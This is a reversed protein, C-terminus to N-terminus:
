SRLVCRSMKREVHVIVKIFVYLFVWGRPNGHGAFRGYLIKQSLMKIGEFDPSVAGLNNMGKRKRRNEDSTRFGRNGGAGGFFGETGGAFLLFAGNKEPLPFPPALGEKSNVTGGPIAFGGM